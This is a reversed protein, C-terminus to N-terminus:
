LGFLFIVSLSLSLFSSLVFSLFSASFLYYSSLHDVQSALINTKFAVTPSGTPIRTSPKSTPVRSPRASSPKATSPAFSPTMSPKRTPSTSPLYPAGNVIGNSVLVHSLKGYNLSGLGSAPDWGTTAYFGQACCTGPSVCRNNGETIDNTYLTYNAYLAPNLWGLSGKGLALRAANISSFFGAVTPASLTSGSVLLNKGGIRAIYNYGALSIDPYGRGDGYGAVPTHNASAAAAFYADVHGKQYSPRPYFRSFGGGSTTASDNKFGQCVM